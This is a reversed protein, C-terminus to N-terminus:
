ARFQVRYLLRYGDINGMSKHMCLRNDWAVLQNPKWEHIYQIDDRSLLLSSFLESHTALSGNNLRISGQFYPLYISGLQMNLIQHTVPSMGCGSQVSQYDEICDSTVTVSIDQLKETTDPSLGAFAARTNIFGTNGGSNPLEISYLLNFVNNSASDNFDGDHHWYNGFLNTTIERHGAADEKYNSVRTLLKDTGPNLFSPLEVLYGLKRGLELLTEGNYQINDIVVIGVTRLGEQLRSILEMEKDFSSADIVLHTTVTM